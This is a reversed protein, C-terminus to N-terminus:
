EDLSSNFQWEIGFKDTLSGYGKAWFTPGFAMTTTGGELLKNYLVELQDVDDLDVLISMNNGKKYPNSPLTDSFLLLEGKYSISGHMVWDMCEKPVQFNPDVPMDSFKMISPEVDLVGGYFNMAEKANGEFNIYVNFIM